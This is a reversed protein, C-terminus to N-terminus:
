EMDELDTHCGVCSIEAHVSNEWNAKDVYLSVERGVDDVTVLERDSHCEFCLNDEKAWLDGPILFCGVTLLLFTLTRFQAKIRGM